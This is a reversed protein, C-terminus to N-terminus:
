IYPCPDCLVLTLRRFFVTPNEKDVVWDALSLVGTDSVEDGM